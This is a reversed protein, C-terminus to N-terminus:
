GRLEATPDINEWKRLLIKMDWTVPPPPPSPLSSFPSQQEGGEVRERKGQQKGEGEGGKGEEGEREGGGGGEFRDLYIRLDDYM